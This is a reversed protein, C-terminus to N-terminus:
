IKCMRMEMSNRIDLIKHKTFLPLSIRLNRKSHNTQIKISMRTVLLGEFIDLQYIASIPFEIKSPVYKKQAFPHTKKVSFCEGSNEIEVSRLNLIILLLAIFLSLFIFIIFINKSAFIGVIPFVSLAVIAYAIARVQKSNSIKM